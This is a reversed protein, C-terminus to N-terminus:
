PSSGVSALSATKGIVIGDPGITTRQERGTSGAMVGARAPGLNSAPSQAPAHPAPRTFDSRRHSGQNERRAQHYRTLASLSPPARSRACSAPLPSVTPEQGATGGGHGPCRQSTRPPPKSSRSCWRAHHPLGRTGISNRPVGPHPGERSAARMARRGPNRPSRTRTQISMERM